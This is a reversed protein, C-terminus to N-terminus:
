SCAFLCSLAYIVHHRAKLNVVVCRLAHLFRERIMYCLNGHESTQSCLTLCANYCIRLWHKPHCFPCPIISPAQFSLHSKSHCIPSPIISPAHFSLKVAPSMHPGNIFCLLGNVFGLLLCFPLQSCIDRSPTGQPEGGRM